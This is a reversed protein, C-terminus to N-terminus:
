AAAKNRNLDISYCKKIHNVFEIYLHILQRIGQRIKEGEMHRGVAKSGQKRRPYNHSIIAELHFDPVIATYKRVIVGISSTITYSPFYSQFVQENIGVKQIRGLM